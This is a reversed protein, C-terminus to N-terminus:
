ESWTDLEVIQVHEVVIPCERSEGARNATKVLLAIFKSADILLKRAPSTHTNPEMAVLVGVHQSKNMTRMLVTDQQVLEGENADVPAEAELHQRQEARQKIACTNTVM